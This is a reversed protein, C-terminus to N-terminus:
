LFAHELLAGVGNFFWENIKTKLRDKDRERGYKDSPPQQHFALTDRSLSLYFIGKRLTLSTIFLPPRRHPYKYSHSFSYGITLRFSDTYICFSNFDYWVKYGEMYEAGISEIVFHVIDSTDSFSM